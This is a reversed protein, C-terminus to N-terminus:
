EENVTIIEDIKAGPFHDLAAKILPDKKANEITNAMIQQRQENLTMEGGETRVEFTWVTKTWELLWKCVDAIFNKQIYSNLRVIVHGPQYDILHVDEDFAAALLAERHQNFLKVMAEYTQPLNAHDHKAPGHDIKTIKDTTEPASKKFDNEVVNVTKKRSRPVSPVSSGHFDINQSSGDDNSYETIVEDNTSVNASIDPNTVTVAQVPEALVIPKTVAGVGDQSSRPWPAVNMLLNNHEDIGEHNDHVLAEMIQQPTPLHASYCLRVFIMQAAQLPSTALKAEQIGKLLMQWFRTLVAVNLTTALYQVQRQEEPTYADHDDLTIGTKILTLHHCTDLLDNLISLPDSGQNYAENLLTLSQQIDGKLLLELWQLTQTMDTLNLMGRVNEATVHGRNLNIAQDLLSLGDRASGHAARALLKLADDDATLQEQDLVRHFLKLVDKDQFRKLEFRVCRSLITDPIKRIETTAFIFKVHEPPEELTKLLANFANRTLMHVEDIIYIKYRATVPKYRVAEIIDRIDDVGTRSAADMEMVDLHSDSLIARCHECIGCPTITEHGQSDPGICNLMRAIIRASTTKGVGRVGTLIFAHPLRKMEIANTLIRVLTEQGSLDNLNQPRYKRALVQSGTSTTM